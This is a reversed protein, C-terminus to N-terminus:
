AYIQVVGPVPTTEALKAQSAAIMKEYKYADVFDRIRARNETIETKIAKIPHFMITEKNNNPRM